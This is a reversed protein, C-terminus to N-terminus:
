VEKSGTYVDEDSYAMLGLLTTDDAFRIIPNSM